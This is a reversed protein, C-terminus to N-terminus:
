RIFLKTTYVEGKTIVRVIVYSDSVMVPVRILEGPPIIKNLLMRGTIDYVYLQKTQLAINGKSIIFLGKEFTYARINSVIDNESVNTLSRNFHLRFRDPNQYTVADFTYVPNNNLDQFKDLKLDELIVYIDELNSLDAIMKQVGNVGARYGVAVTKNEGPYLVPLSNLSLEEDPIIAYVQPAMGDSTFLKRTDHNEFGDKASGFFVINLEDFQDNNYYARLKMKMLNSKSMTNKYYSQSSHVRAEVPITIEPSSANAHIFFGQGLPIVGNTLSGTKVTTNYDQYITGNYVWFTSDVNNMQWDGSDLAVPSAFPNGILNYGLPDAGTFSLPPTTTTNLTVSTKNMEGIFSATVPAAAWLEYGSGPPISDTTIFLYTRSNDAENYQRLWVNPNGGFYLADLTQDKAPPSFNHWVSDSLYRKITAAGTIDLLSDNLLSADGTTDSEIILNGITTISNVTPYNSLGTPITVDTTTSPVNLTWNNENDWNNDSSGNWSATSVKKLVKVDDVYLTGYGSDHYAEFSIYFTDSTAPTFTASGFYWGGYIATDNFIPTGSM